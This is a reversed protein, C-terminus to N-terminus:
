YQIVELNEPIFIEYTVKVEIEKGDKFHRPKGKDLKLTIPDEQKKYKAKYSDISKINIGEAEITCQIWIAKGEWSHWTYTSDSNSEIKLSQVTEDPSFTQIIKKTTIQGYINVVFLLCLFFM